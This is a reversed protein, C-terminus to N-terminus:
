AGKRWIVWLENTSSNDLTVPHLLLLFDVLESQQEPATRAAMELVHCTTLWCDNDSSDELCTIRTTGIIRNVTENPAAEPNSPLAKLIEHQSTQELELIWHLQVVRTKGCRAIIYHFM